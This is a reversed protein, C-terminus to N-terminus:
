TPRYASAGMSVELVTGSLSGEDAALYLVARSVVEPELWPKHMPNLTGFRPLADELTPHDLEPCFLRYNQENEVMPTHVTTPCIVNATIGQEATELAVTKTLGIIGWKTSAYHALNPAGARGAGSSTVIIRGYTQGVMTPLVARICKFTGSLNTDIMDDWIEDTIETVKRYGCVGANAVLIDVRGLQEVTRAVAGDVQSTNRIDVTLGLARGGGQEVLRVTEDLEAPEALPYPVSDIAAAIDWVSVAAGEAALALAHSRGQGRAGGTVIAVRGDLDGM